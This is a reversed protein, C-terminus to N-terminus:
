TFFLMDSKATRMAIAFTITPHPSHGTAAAQYQQELHMLSPPKTTRNLSLQMGHPSSVDPGTTSTAQRHTRGECERKLWRRFFAPSMPQGKRNRRRTDDIWERAADAEGLLSLSQDGGYEQVLRRLADNVRLKLISAVEYTVEEMENMSLAATDARTNPFSTVNDPIPEEDGEIERESEREGELAPKQPNERKELSYKPKRLFKKTKVQEDENSSDPESTGPPAPYRSKAPETLKEWENWRPLHYYRFRGVEYLIVLGAVELAYLANEVQEASYGRIERGLRLSHAIGRGYDDANLILGILILCEDNGALTIVDPDKLFDSPLSRARAM